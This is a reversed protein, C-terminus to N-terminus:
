LETIFVTYKCHKCILAQVPYPYNVEVPTEDTFIKKVSSVIRERPTLEITIHFDCTGKYFAPNGCIPCKDLPFENGSM